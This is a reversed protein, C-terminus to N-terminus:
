IGTGWGRRRRATSRWPRRWSGRWNTSTSWPGLAAPTATGPSSACGPTSRPLDLLTLPRWIKGAELIGSKKFYYYFICSLQSIFNPASPPKGDLLHNTPPWLDSTIFPLWPFHGLQLPLTGNSHEDGLNMEWRVLAELRSLTDLRPSCFGLDLLTDPSVFESSSM